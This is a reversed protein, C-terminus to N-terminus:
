RHYSAPPQPATDLQGHIYGPMDAVLSANYRAQVELRTLACILQEIQLRFDAKESTTRAILDKHQMLWDDFENVAAAFAASDNLCSSLSGLKQKATELVESLPLQVTM